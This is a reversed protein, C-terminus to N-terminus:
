IPYLVNYRYMQDRLISIHGKVEKDKMKMERDYFGISITIVMPNKMCLTMEELKKPKWWCYYMILTIILLSGIASIGYWVEDPIKWKENPPNLELAETGESHINFTLGKMPDDDTTVDTNSTLKLFYDNLLDNTMNIFRERDFKIGLIQDCIFADCLIRSKLRIGDPTESFQILARFRDDQTYEENEEFDELSVSNIEKIQIWFEYYHLIWLSDIDSSQHSVYGREILQIIDDLASEFNYAIYKLIRPSVNKLSYVIDIYLDYADERTPRRTPAQSPYITPDTTPNKSPNTTPDTTPDPSPDSTPEQSPDTTPETTPSKTPDATPNTTPDITPDCTPNETPDNTPANTPNDTPQKTPDNTPDNTPDSTPDNTPDVSPAETPDITPYQTPSKSPATPASTPSSTTPDRTPDITPDQTPSSYCNGICEITQIYQINIWHCYDSLSLNTRLANIRAKDLAYDMICESKNCILKINECPLEDHAIYDLQISESITEITENNTWKIYRDNNCEINNINFPLYGIGNNLEVNNSYEMMVLRTFISNTNINLGDCANPKLCWIIGDNDYEDIAPNITELTNIDFSSDQFHIFINVDDCSMIDNCIMIFSKFNSLDLELGSCSQGSTCSIVLEIDQANSSSITAGRCSSTDNCTIIITSNTKLINIKTFLCSAETCDIQCLEKKCTMNRLIYDNSNNATFQEIDTKGSKFSDINIDFQYENRGHDSSILPDPYDLCATPSMSPATPEPSPFQSPPLTPFITPM